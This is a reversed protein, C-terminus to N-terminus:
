DLGGTCLNSYNIFKNNDNTSRDDKMLDLRNVSVNVLSFFSLSSDPALLVTEGFWPVLGVDDVVPTDVATVAFGIVDDDVDDDDDDFSPLVVTDSGVPLEDDVVFVDTIVFPV